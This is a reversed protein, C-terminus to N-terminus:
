FEITIKIFNGSFVVFNQCFIWVMNWKPYIIIVFRILEFAFIFNSNEDFPFFIELFPEFQPLHNWGISGDPSHIMLLNFEPLKKIKFEIFLPQIQIAWVTSKWFDNSIRTPTHTPPCSTNKFFNLWFKLFEFKWPIPGFNESIELTLM